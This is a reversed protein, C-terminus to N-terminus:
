VRCATKGGIVHDLRGGAPLLLPAHRDFQELGGGFGTQQAQHHGLLRAAVAQAEFLSRRDVLNQGAGVHRQRERELNVAIQGAVQGSVARRGLNLTVQVGHQRTFHDAGEHQGLRRTPLSAVAIVVLARDSRSPQTSSPSFAQTELPATAPTMSTKAWVSGARPQRPM